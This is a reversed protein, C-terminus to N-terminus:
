KPFFFINTTIEPPLKWQRPLLTHDQFGTWDHYLYKWCSRWDTNLNTSCVVCPHPSWSDDTWLTYQYQILFVFVKLREIISFFIQKKESENWISLYIKQYKSIKIIQLACSCEYSLYYMNYIIFYAFQAQHLYMRTHNM